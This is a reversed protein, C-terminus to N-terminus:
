KTAAGQKKAKIGVLEILEKVRRLCEKKTRTPICEAVRDWRDPTSQPFNKMAQELMLQEENTWLKKSVPAKKTISSKSSNTIHETDSLEAINKQPIHGNTEKQKIDIKEMNSENQATCYQYSVAAQRQSQLMKVKNLVDRPTIELKTISHQTLYTTVVDWRKITGAPFLNVAKVLLQIDQASWKHIEETVCGSNTPMDDNSNSRKTEYKGLDNVSTTAYKEDLEKMKDTYRIEAESIAELFVSRCLEQNDNLFQKNLDRIELLSFLECIKEMGEINRVKKDTDNHNKNNNNQHSEELQCNMFYNADKLRDRLLKREKKLAKKQHEKEIRLQEIRKQEAEEAEKKAMEAARLSREQQAKVAQQAEMKAKKMAIKKEKEETKFKQIRKDNNYALDVLSRIRLAEEKKHKARALKNEKCIFRREDRDQGREKDEEDLYSYERWSKFNYWFTYFNEVEERSSNEDGFLPVIKNESWRSNMRFQREFTGYFDNNIEDQTPLTNDFTPDM